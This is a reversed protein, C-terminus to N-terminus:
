PVCVLSGKRLADAERKMRRVLSRLYGAIEPRRIAEANRWASGMAAYAFAALLPTVHLARKVEKRSAFRQWLKAYSSAMAEEVNPDRGLLRRRHEMLYQVTFFPPGVYAEAWDLFVCRADSVLVNGPNFDLHGLTNPIACEALEELSSRIDGRLSFLEELSLPAPSPKTQRKMLEAATELFPDVLDLLACPRADKCRADLLQFTRGFSQVQLRALTKATATWSSTGSQTDLSSGQSELTLWANWEPHSGLIPPVFDPFLQALKLSVPFEHINPEGVAKFWLASSNTEFRILSFTPSANLQRFGGTLYLGFHGAQAAVWETTIQLWGPKGFPGPRQGRRYQHLRTQSNEIAEFDRQRDFDGASLDALLLWQMGAPAEKEPECAEVVHFRTSECSPDIDSLPFLSYSKLDWLRTIASTLQEAIRTHRAIPVIPLHLGHRTTEPTTELLLEAADNRYLLVQFLDQEFQVSTCM